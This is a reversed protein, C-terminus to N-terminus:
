PAPTRRGRVVIVAGISALLLLGVLISGVILPGKRSEATGRAQGALEVTLPFLGSRPVSPYTEEGQFTIAGGISPLDADFAFVGRDGAEVSAGAWVLTPAM